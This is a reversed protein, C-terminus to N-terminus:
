CFNENPMFSWGVFYVKALCREFRNAMENLCPNGDRYLM